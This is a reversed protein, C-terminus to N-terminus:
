STKAGVNHGTKLGVNVHLRAAARLVALERPSLEAEELAM